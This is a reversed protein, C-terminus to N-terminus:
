IGARRRSSTPGPFPGSLGGQSVYQGMGFAASFSGMSAFIESVSDMKGKMEPFMFICIAIFASISITWILFSKFGSKTERKYVNM